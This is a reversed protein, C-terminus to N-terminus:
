DDTKLQDTLFKLEVLDVKFSAFRCKGCVSMEQMNM